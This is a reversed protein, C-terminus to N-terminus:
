KCSQLSETVNTSVEQPPNGASGDSRKETPWQPTKGKGKEKEGGRGRSKTKMKGWFYSKSNNEIHRQYLGQQDKRM